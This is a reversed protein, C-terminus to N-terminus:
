RKVFVSWYGDKTKIVRTSYNHKRLNKARGEAMKKDTFKAHRDYSKGGITRHWNSEFGMVSYGGRARRTV